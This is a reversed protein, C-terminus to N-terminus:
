VERLAVTLKVPEGIVVARIQLLAVASIQMEGDLGDSSYLTATYVGNGLPQVDAAVGPGFVREVEDEVLDQPRESV